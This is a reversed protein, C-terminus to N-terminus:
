LHAGHNCIMGFIINDIKIRKYSNDNNDNNDNNNTPNSILKGGRTRAHKWVQVLRLSNLIVVCFPIAGNDHTIYYIKRFM